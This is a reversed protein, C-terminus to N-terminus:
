GRGCSSTLWQRTRPCAPSSRTRVRRALATVDDMTDIDFGPPLLAYPIGAARCQLCDETRDGM